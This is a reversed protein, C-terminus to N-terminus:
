FFFDVYPMRGAAVMQGALLHYSDGVYIPRQSIRIALVFVFALSALVGMEELRTRSSYALQKGAGSASSQVPTGM